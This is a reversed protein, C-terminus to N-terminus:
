VNTINNNLYNQHHQSKCHRSKNGQTYSKGCECLHIKSRRAKDQSIHEERYIRNYEIKEQRHEQYYQSYAEKLQEKHEQNYKKKYEKAEEKHEDRYQKHQIKIEDKKNEYRTKTRQKAKEQYEADNQYKDKNKKSRIEKQQEPTKGALNVNLNGIKEIWEGEKARLEEIDSCPYKEVLNIYFKDIGLQNMKQYLRANNRKANKCASRHAEMRKSLAQTTHGVYIDNDIYNKICYIKGNEYKM